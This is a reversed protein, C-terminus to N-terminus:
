VLYFPFPILWGRAYRGMVFAKPQVPRLLLAFLFLVFTLGFPVVTADCASQTAHTTEFALGHFIEDPRPYKM